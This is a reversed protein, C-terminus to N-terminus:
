CTVIVTSYLSSPVIVLGMIPAADDPERFPRQLTGSAMHDCAVDVLDRLLDRDRAVQIGRIAVRRLIDRLVAIRHEAALLLLRWRVLIPVRTFAEGWSRKQM